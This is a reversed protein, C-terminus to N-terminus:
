SEADSDSSSDSWNERVMRMWKSHDMLKIHFDDVDKDVVKDMNQQAQKKTQSGRGGLYCM